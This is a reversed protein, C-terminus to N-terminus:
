AAPPDRPRDREITLTVRRQTRRSRRLGVVPVFKRVLFAAALAFISTAAWFQWDDIPFAFALAPM